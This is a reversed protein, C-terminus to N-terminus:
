LGGDETPQGPQTSEIVQLARNAASGVAPDNRLAHLRPIAVAGGAGFAPLVEIVADHLRSAVESRADLAAILAALVRGPGSGSPKSDRSM